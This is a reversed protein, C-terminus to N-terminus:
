RRLRRIWSTKWSGVGNLIVFPRHHLIPLTQEIRPVAVAGARVVLTVSEFLDAVRASVVGSSLPPLDAILVDCRDRLQEILEGLRGIRATVDASARLGGAPMIEIDRDVRQLCQDISLDGHLFEAVGPAAGVSVVKEVGGRELDLDVLITKHHLAIASTAALAVAVTTRGERRSMSTVAISGIDADGMRRLAMSCSELVEPRIFAWGVDTSGRLKGRIPPRATTTDSGVLHEDHDGNTSRVPQSVGSPTRSTVAGV